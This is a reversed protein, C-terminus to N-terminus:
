NISAQSMEPVVIEARNRISELDYEVLLKGNEFVPILLDEVAEMTYNQGSERTEIKGNSTRVLRLHGRKSNKNPDTKPQKYVDSEVGNITISCCKIAFQQEDRDHAQLLKGGAGFAINDASWGHAKFNSLIAEISEINVGDGQIIRVHPDLVKYGKDNTTFGFRKGLSEVIRLTVSVPDGSDPRIVLTGDRKMVKDHLDQGWIKDVANDIDWSDSVCAVLGTPYQDLMNEYAKGENEKGWSTMTSHESAPIGFGCMEANYYIMLMEIGAVTDTGMFNVLHAAGGIMASEDSSVGRYGFDHFKFQIAEPTGTDILYKLIIKKCERSYTAVTTPFWVQLLITELFNTLSACKKDTNRITMMVNRVPVVTGEAVACIRVPLLGGLNDVIHDWMVRKFIGKVGFHANWFFEARDVDAKTLPTTLHEKIIYQLGFFVTNDFHGGRSELYSEVFETGLPYQPPHTAKYSDSKTIISRKM